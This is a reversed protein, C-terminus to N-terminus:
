SAVHYRAFHHIIDVHKISQGAKCDKCLSLVAKNDCFVTLSGKIPFGTSLLAFEYIAKPLWSGEYAAPRCAQYEADMM